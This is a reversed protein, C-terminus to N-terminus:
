ALAHKYATACGGMLILISYCMCLPLIALTGSTTQLQQQDKESLLYVLVLLARAKVNRKYNSSHFASLREIGGMRRIIARGMPLASSFQYLTGLIAKVCDSQRKGKKQNVATDFSGEILVTMYWECMRECLDKRHNDSSSIFWLAMLMHYFLEHKPANGKWEHLSRVGLHNKPQSYSMILEPLKEKIIMAQSKAFLEPDECHKSSSLYRLLRYVLFVCECANPLQFGLYSFVWTVSLGLLLSSM